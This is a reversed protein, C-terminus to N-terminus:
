FYYHPLFKYDPHKITFVFITNKSKELANNAHTLNM